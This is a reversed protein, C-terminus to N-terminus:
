HALLYEKIKTVDGDMIKYNCYLEHGELETSIEQHIYLADLGVKKAGGMDSICDNGIMISRSKELNYNKILKEFVLIAPFGVFWFLENQENLKGAVRM